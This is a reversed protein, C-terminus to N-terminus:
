ASPGLAKEKRVRGRCIHLRAKALWCAWRIIFLKSPSINTISVTLSRM